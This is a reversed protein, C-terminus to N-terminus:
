ETQDTSAAPIQQCKGNRCAPDIEEYKNLLDSYGFFLVVALSAFILTTIAFIAYLWIFKGTMKHNDPNREKYLHPIKKAASTKTNKTRNPKTAM